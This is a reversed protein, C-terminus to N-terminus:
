KRFMEQMVRIDTAEDIQRQHLFDYVAQMEAPADGHKNRYENILDVEASHLIQMHDMEQNSLNAFTRAIEPNSEKQELACRIYKRADALEDEIMDSLKKILKM